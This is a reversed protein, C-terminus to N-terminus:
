KSPAYLTGPKAFTSDVSNKHIDGYNPTGSPAAPTAPYSPYSPNSPNTPNNPASPTITTGSPPPVVTPPSGGGNPATSPFSPNTQNQAFATLASSLLLLLATIKM